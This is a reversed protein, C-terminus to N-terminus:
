ECGPRFPAPALEVLGARALGEVVRAAALRSDEDARPGSLSYRAQRVVIGRARADIAMAMLREQPSGDRMADVKCLVGVALDSAMKPTLGFTMRPSRRAYVPADMTRMVVASPDLKDLSDWRRMYASAMSDPVYTMEA